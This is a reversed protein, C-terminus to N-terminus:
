QSSKKVERKEYGKTFLFVFEYDKEYLRKVILM